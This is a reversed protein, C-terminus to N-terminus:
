TFHAVGAAVLAATLVATAFPWALSPPQRGFRTLAPFTVEHISGRDGNVLLVGDVDFAVRYELIQRRTAPTEIRAALEGTKVEAVYRIGRRQVLYDARLTVVVQEQDVRLTHEAVIQAGLVRYGHAELVRAARREGRAAREFRIVSRRRRSRRAVALWLSQLLVLALAFAAVSVLLSRPIAALDM